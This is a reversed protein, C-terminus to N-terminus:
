QKNETIDEWGVLKIYEHFTCGNDYPCVVSPSVTGDESITHSELGFYDGTSDIINPHIIGDLGLVPSWTNRNGEETPSRTFEKM